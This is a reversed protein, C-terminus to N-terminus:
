RTEGNLCAALATREPACFGDALAPMGEEDCAWRTRPERGLCAGFARRPSACRPDGLAEACGRRCDATSKRCGLRRGQLCIAECPDAATAPVAAVTAAVIPEAV